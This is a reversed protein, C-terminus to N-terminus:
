RDVFKAGATLTYGKVPACYSKGLAQEAKKEFPLKGQKISKIVVHTNVRAYNEKLHKIDNTKRILLVYKRRAKRTTLFM